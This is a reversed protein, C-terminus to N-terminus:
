LLIIVQYVKCNLRVTDGVAATYNSILGPSFYPGTYLGKPAQQLSGGAFRRNHRLNPLGDMLKNTILDPDASIPAKNVKGVVM